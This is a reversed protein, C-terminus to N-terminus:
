YVEETGLLREPSEMAFFSPPTHGTFTKYDKSLHQYDSYGCAIAINFWSMEPYCNKMRYAQDFRVIRLYEKPSIGMRDIFKRDFQRHCLFANSIYWDLPYRPDLMQQAMVDIPQANNRAKGVKKMLFREAIAIMEQHSKAHYLQDNVQEIIDGFVDAADTLQNTLGSLSIGLLRYLAGPQFVIQLSLFKKFVTRSNTITQQGIILANKPRISKDSNAYKIITPTPFFQLCQEPRPTYAKPPIPNNHPFEFDIIRYFRVFSALVTSPKIERLYM